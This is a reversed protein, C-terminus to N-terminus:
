GRLVAAATRVAATLTELVPSEIKWRQWYLPVDLFRGPEVEVLRGAALDPLAHQEPMMGWGLGQRIAEEFSAAAPVYHAPPLSRSGLFRQQLEDKRNYVVVPSTGLDVVRSFPSAVALYRMVGLGEVRCGQVAVRDATVAAMAQGTRLLEASHDQDDIHLEFRVDPVATLVPLFWTNLSDANVVVSLRSGDRAQGLAEQELLAVQGAFRVLAQGATTAVCPKGRRVLVQGVSSELAKIRQSVASPTVHLARAAAEFSGQEVVAQFTALQVQDM